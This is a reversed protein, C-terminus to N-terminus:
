LNAHQRRQYFYTSMVALEKQPYWFYKHLYYEIIKSFKTGKSTKTGSCATVMYM